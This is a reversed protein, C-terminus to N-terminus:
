KRKRLLALAGAVLGFLALTSPEPVSVVGISYLDDDSAANNNEYREADAYATPVFTWKFVLSTSSQTDFRVGYSSNATASTDVIDFVLTGASTGLDASSFTYTDLISSPTLTSATPDAVSFFEFTTESTDLPANQFNIAIKDITTADVLTFTQANDRDGKVDREFTNEDPAFGTRLQDFVLHEADSPAQFDGGSLPLVSISASFAHPAHCVLIICAAFLSRSHVSRKM